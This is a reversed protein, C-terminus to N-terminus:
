KKRTQQLLITKGQRKAHIPLLTEIAHLFPELKNADFNGSLTEHALEPNAFVFKVSHYRELEATVQSLPTRKFVLHGNLWATITENNIAEPLNLGTNKTYVRQNGATLPEHNVIEGDNLEVEGELVAVVVREPALHVDFRTGIDRIQLENAQVTFARLSEHHVTFLAEGKILHVQRQLLSIKVHLQTNTNLDIQSDDALIIHRHEGQATTYSLTETSYEQYAGSILATMLLLLALTALPTKTPKVKRADNLAPIDNLTKLEDFNNWLQRAKAYAASHASNKVLWADFLQRDQESFQDSQLRVFWTVAQKLQRESYNM